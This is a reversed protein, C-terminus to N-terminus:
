NIIVKKKENTMIVKRPNREMLGAPRPFQSHFEPMKNRFEFFYEEYIKTQVAESDVEFVKTSM